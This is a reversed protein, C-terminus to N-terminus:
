RFILPLFIPGLIRSTENANSLLLDDDDDDDNSDDASSCSSLFADTEVTKAVAADEDECETDDDKADAMADAASDKSDLFLPLVIVAAVVVVKGDEVDMEPDDINVVSDPEADMDVSHM